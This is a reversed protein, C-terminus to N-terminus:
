IHGERAHELGSPNAAPCRGQAHAALSLTFAAAVLVTKLLHQMRERGYIQGHGAQLCHLGQSAGLVIPVCLPSGIGDTICHPCGSIVPNAKTATVAWVAEGAGKM